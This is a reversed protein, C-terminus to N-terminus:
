TSCGDGNKLPFGDDCAELGEVVGNGCYGSRSCYSIGETVGYVTCSWGSEIKCARNCGDGEIKNGDDCDEGYKTEQKGNGCYVKLQPDQLNRCKTNDLCVWGFEVQCFYNCGDGNFTNGDDCVEGITPEFVGNGCRPTM